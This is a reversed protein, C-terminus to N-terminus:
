RPVEGESGDDHKWTISQRLSGTDILPRDSGKRAITRPVNPAFSGEAIYRKVWGAAVAGLQGLAIGEGIAGRVVATMGLRAVRAFEPLYKRLGARLFSREPINKEPVGFESAAAVQWMQTGDQEAAGRPVGVLVRQSALRAALERLGRGHTDRVVRLNTKM